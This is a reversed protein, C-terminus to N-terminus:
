TVHMFMPREPTRNLSVLKNQIYDIGKDFNCGGQYDPFCVLMLLNSETHELLFIGKMDLKAIKEKFLDSKNLFVIMPITKLWKDNCVDDFLQVSEHMRNVTEDEVLKMDYRRLFNAKGNFKCVRQHCHLLYHSDCRPLLSDM